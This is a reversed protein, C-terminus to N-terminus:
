CALQNLSRDINIIGTTISPGDMSATMIIKEKRKGSYWTISYFIHLPLFSFKASTVGEVTQAKTYCFGCM